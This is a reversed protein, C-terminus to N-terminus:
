FNRVKIFDRPDNVVLIGNHALGISGWQQARTITGGGMLGQKKGFITGVLIKNGNRKDSLCINNNDHIAEHLIWLM